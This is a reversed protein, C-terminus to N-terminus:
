QLEASLEVPAAPRTRYIVYNCLSILALTATGITIWAAQDTEIAWYLILGYLVQTVAEMPLGLKAGDFVLGNFHCLWFFLLSLSVLPLTPLEGFYSMLYTFLM